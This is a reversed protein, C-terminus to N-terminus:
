ELTRGISRRMLRVMGDGPELLPGRAMRTAEELGGPLTLVHSLCRSPDAFEPRPGAGM